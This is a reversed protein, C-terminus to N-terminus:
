RPQSEHKIQKRWENKSAKQLLQHETLKIQPEKQSEGLFYHQKATWTDWESRGLVEISSADDDQKAIWKLKAVAEIDTPEEV